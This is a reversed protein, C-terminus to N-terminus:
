RSGSKYLADLVEIVKMGEYCTVFPETDNIVCDLFAENPETTKFSFQKVTESSIFRDTQNILVVGGDRRSAGGKTGYVDTVLKNDEVMSGFSVELEMSLGSKFKIHGAALDESDFTFKNLDSSPIDPLFKRYTSCSVSDLEPFGAIYLALDLLHTGLDRLVGGGKDKENFWNRNYMTGDPRTSYPTPMIGMPRRWAIRMFYIDGFRGEDNLKKILQIDSGFRQNHSIMLKKGNRESAECMAKAEAVSCAMPKQCLVHKGANLADISAQAHLYTPLCIVVADVDANALLERYDTYAHEIGLREKEHQLWPEDIDCIATIAARSNDTLFPIHAASIGGMGIIGMKVKNKM